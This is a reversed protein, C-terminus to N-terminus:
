KNPSMDVVEAEHLKTIFLLFLLHGDERIIQFHVGALYFVPLPLLSPSSEPRSYLTLSRKAHM